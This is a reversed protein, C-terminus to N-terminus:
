LQFQVFAADRWHATANGSLFTSVVLTKLKFVIAFPDIPKLLAENLSTPLLKIISTWQNTNSYNLTQCNM